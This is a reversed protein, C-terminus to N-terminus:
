NAPAATRSRLRELVDEATTRLRPGFGKAALKETVSAAAAGDLEDLATEAAEAEVQRERLRKLTQEAEALTAEHAPGPEIRGQRMQRVAESARALRRGRDLEAIRAQAQAVHRRLRLIEAAFLAQASAAANRDAELAAIAEAGERALGDNSAALAAAVRSELDAIRANGAALREAEQRDQAIAIALAKKAREFAAAADRMQQDLILLANRDVFREGAIAADGRVFTLFMKLM